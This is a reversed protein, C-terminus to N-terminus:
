HHVAADVATLAQAVRADAAATSRAEGDALGREYGREVLQTREANSLSSGVGDAPPAIAEHGRPPTALEDLAWASVPRLPTSEGHGRVCGLGTAKYSSTMPPEGSWSKAPM